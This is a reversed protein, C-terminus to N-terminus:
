NGVPEEDTLPHTSVLSVRQAGDCTQCLRQHEHLRTHAHAILLEGDSLLFNLVSTPALRRILPVLARAVADPDERDRAPVRVLRDLLLTFLHESDTEGVPVHRRPRLAREGKIRPVVGNHAFTWARGGLEREFPHTNALTQGFRPPNARRIHALITQSRMHQGVVFALCRSDAAPRPEKVVRAARGEYLAVGWGDAHHATLGGRPAFLGLSSDADTPLRASMGFLECM